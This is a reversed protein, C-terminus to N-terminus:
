YDGGWGRLLKIDEDNATAGGSSATSDIRATAAQLGGQHLQVVERAAGATAARLQDVAPHPVQLLGDHAQVQLLVVHHPLSQVLSTPGM